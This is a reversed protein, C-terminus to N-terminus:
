LLACLLFFDCRAPFRSASSSFDHLLSPVHAHWIWGAPLQRGDEQLVAERRSDDTRRSRRVGHDAGGLRPCRAVASFQLFAADVSGLEITGVYICLTWM